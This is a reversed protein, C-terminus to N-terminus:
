PRGPGCRVVGGSRILLKADTGMSELHVWTKEYGRV